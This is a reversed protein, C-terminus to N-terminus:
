EDRGEWYLEELKEEFNEPHVLAAIGGAEDILRLTHLQLESVYATPHRKLEWGFFKGKVCGVLDPIGRRKREETKFFWISELRKLEERCRRQFQAETM